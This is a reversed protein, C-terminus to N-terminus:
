VLPTAPGDDRHVEGAALRKPREACRELRRFVAPAASRWRRQWRSQRERRRRPEGIDFM